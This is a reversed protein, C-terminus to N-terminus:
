KQREWMIFTFIDTNFKGFENEAAIIEIIPSCM